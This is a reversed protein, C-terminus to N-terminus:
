PNGRQASLERTDLYERWGAIKSEGDVEFVGVVHLAVPTGRGIM